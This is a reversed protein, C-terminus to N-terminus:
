VDGRDLIRRALDALVADAEYAGELVRRRIQAIRDTSEAAVPEVHTAKARGAASIEVRDFREVTSPTPKRSQDIPLAHAGGPEAKRPRDAPLIRVERPESKRAQEVPLAHAGGPERKREPRVPGSNGNNVKM